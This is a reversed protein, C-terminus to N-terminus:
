TLDVTPATTDLPLAADFVSIGLTSGDRLSFNWVESSEVAGDNLTPISFTATGVGNSGFSVTKSLSYNGSSGSLSVSTDNPSIGSIFLSLTSSSGATGGAMSATVSITEGETYASKTSTLPM